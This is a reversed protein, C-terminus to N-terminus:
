MIFIVFCMFLAVCTEAYTVSLIARILIISVKSIDFLCFSKKKCLYVGKVLINKSVIIKLYEGSFPHKLSSIWRVVWIYLWSTFTSQIIRNYVTIKCLFKFILRGLTPPSHYWLKYLLFQTSPLERASINIEIDHQNKVKSRFANWLEIDMKNVLAWRAMNIEDIYNIKLYTFLFVM